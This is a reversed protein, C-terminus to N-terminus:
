PLPSEKVGSLDDFYLDSMPGQPVEIVLRMTRANKHFRATNFVFNKKVWGSSDVNEKRSAFCSVYPRGGAGYLYGGLFFVGKGKVWLSIKLTDKGPTVPILASSYLSTRQGAKNVIRLCAGTRGSPDQKFDGGKGNKHWNAVVREFSDDSLLELRETQEQAGLVLTVMFLCFATTFLTKM